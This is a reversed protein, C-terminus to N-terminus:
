PCRYAATVKMGAGRSGILDVHPWAPSPRRIVEPVPGFRDQNEDDDGDQV